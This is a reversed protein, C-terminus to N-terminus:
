FKRVFLLQVLEKRWGVVALGVLWWFAGIRFRQWWSLAKEVEVTEVTNEGHKEIVVTDRVTHEVPVEILQPISELSHSLFGGSVLAESKAWRNALLSATDRTVKKEVEKDVTLRVTDRVIRERYEVRVSDRYVVQVPKPKCVSCSALPLIFVPVMWSM